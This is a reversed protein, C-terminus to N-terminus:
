PSVAKSDLRNARSEDSQTSHRGATPHSVVTSYLPLGRPTLPGPCFIQSFVGSRKRVGTKAAKPAAFGPEERGLQRHFRQQFVSAM